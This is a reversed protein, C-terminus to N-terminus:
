SVSMSSQGEEVSSYKASFVVNQQSTSNESTMKLTVDKQIKKQM